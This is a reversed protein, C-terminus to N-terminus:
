FGSSVWSCQRQLGCNESHAKPAAHQSTLLPTCTALIVVAVSDAHVTCQVERDTRSMEAAEPHSMAQSQLHAPRALQSVVRDLSQALM